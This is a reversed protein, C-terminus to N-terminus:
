SMARTKPVLTSIIRRLDHNLVDIWTQDNGMIQLNNSLFFIISLRRLICTRREHVCQVTLKVKNVCIFRNFFTIHCILVHIHGFEHRIFVLLISKKAQLIIKRCCRVSMLM